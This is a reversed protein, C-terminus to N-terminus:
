ARLKKLERGAASSLAERSDSDLEMSPSSPALLAPASPPHLELSGGWGEEAAACTNHLADPNM